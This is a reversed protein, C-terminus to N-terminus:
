FKKSIGISFIKLKLKDQFIRSDNLNDLTEMQQTGFNIKSFDARYILGNSFHEFGFGFSNGRLNSSEAQPVLTLGEPDNDRYSQMIKSYVKGAKIFYNSNDKSLGFRLGPYFYRGDSTMAISDDGRVGVYDPFQKEEKINLKGYEFEIGFFYLDNIFLNHGLFFSIMKGDPSYDGNDGENYLLLETSRADGKALGLKVGAYNGAFSNKTEAFSIQANLVIVSILITTALNARSRLKTIM